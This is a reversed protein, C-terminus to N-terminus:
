GAPVAAQKAAKAARAKALNAMAIARRQEPTLPAKPKPAASRLTALEANLKQVRRHVLDVDEWWAKSTRLWNIFDQIPKVPYAVDVLRPQDTWETEQLIITAPAALKTM